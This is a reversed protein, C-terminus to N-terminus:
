LGVFATRRVLFEGDKSTSTATISFWRYTWCLCENAIVDMHYLGVGDKIIAGAYEYHEDILIGSPSLVQCYVDAPDTLVTGVRFQGRVRVVDDLDYEAPAVM